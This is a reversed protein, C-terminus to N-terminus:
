AGRLRLPRCAGGRALGDVVVTRLRRAVADGRAIALDDRRPTRCGATPPVVGHALALAAAAVALAGAAGFQGTAGRPATVLTARGGIARVLADAEVADLAPAGSAAAVVLDADTVLPALVAALAAGDAPWGHLPAPVSAGAHPEVLAWIRAGRARARDLSELVLVAAGETRRVGDADRDFPRAVGSPSAIRTEREIRLLEDTVEDAGGALCVDLAGDAVQQAGWAIATEGSAEQETLMASPGTTGLEITAYSLAANMVLNPFVLPNGAGRSLLRDLFTQTETVNGFASGLALGSRAPPLAEAALDAHALAARAAALTLLSARDIRRGQPTRVTAAVDLVLRDAAPATGACLGNWFADVGSGVPSLVGIGTIAVPRSVVDPRV